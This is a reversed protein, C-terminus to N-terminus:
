LQVREKKRKRKRKEKEKEKRKREELSNCLLPVLPIMASKMRAPDSFTSPKRQRTQELFAIQAPLPLSNTHCANPPHTSASPLFAWSQPIMKLTKHRPRTASLLNSRLYLFLTSSLKDQLLM